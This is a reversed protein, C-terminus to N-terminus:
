HILFEQFANILRPDAKELRQFINEFLEKAQLNESNDKALHHLKLFDEEKELHCLISMFARWFANTGNLGANKQCLNFLWLPSIESDPNKLWDEICLKLLKVNRPITLEAKKLLKNEIAQKSFMIKENCM